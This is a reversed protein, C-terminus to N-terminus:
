RIDKISPKSGGMRAKSGIKTSSICARQLDEIKQKLLGFERM